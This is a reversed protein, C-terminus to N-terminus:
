ERALPYTREAPYWGERGAELEIRLWVGRSERVRVVEGILPVSGAEAGLAPLSRLPVPTAIVVLDMGRSQWEAFGALGGVLVGPVILLAGRRATARRWRRRASWAWGLLWLTLAAIALPLTPLPWVRAPGRTQPARVRALRARLGADLPDLRLARQWGLVAAATDAAQWSASGFNAWANADRPAANAARLFADRARGWDQGAYATQGEAFATMADRSTNTPDPACGLAGGLVATALTLLLVSARRRAENGVRDLVTRARARLEAVGGARAYAGADLADRLREADGAVEPTVGERRLAAALAGPGTVRELAIGTRERLAADFLARVEGPVVSTGERLREAPTAPRKGRPRRSRWRAVLWPIPALLALWGWVPAAPLTVPTAGALEAHVTLPTADRAALARPPITVLDGPRVEVAIPATRAIEYRRAEPDFFAYSLSPVQRTGADKPTVLWAFEKSGRLTTPTSDLVVREDEAVVIAWPIALEPRPLLTANGVGEVRLTLVFPDGVRASQSDLRARARWRGVAGGWEAPRGAVPPEIAVVTVGESRLTREDERSFFSPSQPLAFSLQAPAISYRGATLPFLARRFVHVETGEGPAPAKPTPLDYALMSRAEPAVFQPNRRLRQRVDAAITVTLEYSAQQGVYVTDPSVRARFGVGQAHASASPVAIAAAVLVAVMAGIRLALAVPAPRRM